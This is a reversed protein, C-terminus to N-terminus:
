HTSLGADGFRCSRIQVRSSVMLFTGDPQSSASWVMLYFFFLFLLPRNLQSSFLLPRYLCNRYQHASASVSLSSISMHLLCERAATEATRAVPSIRLSPRLLVVRNARPSTIRRPVSRTALSVMRPSAQRLLDLRLSARHSALRSPLNTNRTM